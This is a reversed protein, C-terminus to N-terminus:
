YLQESQCPHEGIVNSCIKLVGNGLYVQSPSSGYQVGQRTNGNKNWEFVRFQQHAQCLQLAVKNFDCKPM